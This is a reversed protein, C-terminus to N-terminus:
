GGANIGRCSTQHTLWFRAEDTGGITDSVVDPAISSEHVDGGYDVGVAVTLNIASGDSLEFLQNGTPVGATPRGFSRV